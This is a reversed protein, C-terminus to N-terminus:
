VGARELHTTVVDVRDTGSEGDAWSEVPEDFKVGFESDGSWRASATVEIQDAPFWLRVRRPVSRLVEARILAGHSSRDRVTAVALPTGSESRVEVYGFTLKRNEIREDQESRSFIGM